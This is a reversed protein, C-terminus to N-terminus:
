YGLLGAWGPRIDKVLLSDFYPTQTVLSDIFALCSINNGAAM